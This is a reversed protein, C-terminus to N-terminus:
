DPACIGSAMEGAPDRQVVAALALAGTKARTTEEWPFGDAVGGTEGGDEGM